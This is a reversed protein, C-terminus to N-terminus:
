LEREMQKFVEGLDEWFEHAAILNQEFFQFLEKWNDEVLVSKKPLEVYILDVLNGSENYQNASWILETKFYGQLVTKYEELQMYFLERIADKSHVVEISFTALKNDADVKFFIPSCQTNYNVWKIKGGYQPIYKKM